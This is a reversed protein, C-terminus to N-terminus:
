LFGSRQWFCRLDRGVQDPVETLIGNKLGPYLLTEVHDYEAARALLTDASVGIAQDGSLLLVPCALAALDPEAEPDAYARYTQTFVALDMNRFQALRAALVDPHQRAFAPRYWSSVMGSLTEEIGKDAVQQLFSEVRALEQESRDLPTALLTLSRIAAPHLRAVRAAILGGLSHGVLHVRDAPLLGLLESLDEVFVEFTLREAPLSCRGHGRLDYSVCHHDGSLEAIVGEWTEQSSANGHVFVVTEGDGRQQFDVATM